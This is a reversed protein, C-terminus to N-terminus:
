PGAIGHVPMGMAKHSLEVLIESLTPHPHISQALDELRMGMRVALTCEGVLESVMPGILQVGLIRQTGKEWVVKAQGAIEGLIQAKGVGRMLFKESDTELGLSAAQLESLGVCAVEPSTFIASPVAEYNFGKNAGLANEAAVMGEASALHALMPRSPGLADGVASVGSASTELMQNVRIWGRGDVEVGLSELGLGSSVPERGVCVVVRDVLIAKSAQLRVSLPELGPSPGLIVELGGDQDQVKQVVQRLYVQIGRKRMEREILTSSDPDLAPLPLLRELAEVVHVQSGLSKLICALECGIVGGGVILTRPPIEELELVDSSSLIREGDFPVSPLCLPRSGTALILRDWELRESEGSPTEVGLLGPGLIRGVGQIQRVRLRSLIKLIGTEQIEVVKRKRAMLWVPNVKPTGELEIGMEEKGRLADLLEATAKLVKTPICGWHLCTGGIREKEVLTVQAGLQAARIAAVYGGPGGGLVLVKLSM